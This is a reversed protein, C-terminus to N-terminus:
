GIVLPSVGLFHGILFGAFGATLGIAAMQLGRKWFSGVTVKADYSGILFLIIGSVTISVAV